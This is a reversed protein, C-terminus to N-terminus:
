HVHVIAWTVFAVVGGLALSALSAYTALRKLRRDSAKEASDAKKREEELAHEAGAARAERENWVRVLEAADDVRYGTGSDTAKLGIEEASKPPVTVPIRARHVPLHTALAAKVEGVTIEQLSQRAKVGKIEEKVDTFREDVEARLENISRVVLSGLAQLDAQTVAKKAAEEQRRLHALTERQAALIEDMPTPMTPDKPLPHAPHLTQVDHPYRRPPDTPMALTM